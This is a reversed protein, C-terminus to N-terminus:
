VGVEMEIKAIKRPVMPIMMAPLDFGTGIKEAVELRYEIDDSVKSYSDTVCAKSHGLWFRILDEPTRQKRLWTTRYRRFAHFGTKELGLSALIPHLSRSVVNTQSLPRGNQNAFVLGSRRQGIFADLMEALKSSIDIQRYASKTKPDSDNQGM